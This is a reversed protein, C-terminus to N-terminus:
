RMQVKLAATFQAMTYAADGNKVRLKNIEAFMVLALARVVSGQATLATNLTATDIASLDPPPPSVYPAIGGATTIQAYLAATPGDTPSVTISIWGYVPHNIEVDISGFQNFVPDRYEM